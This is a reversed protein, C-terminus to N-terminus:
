LEDKLAVFCLESGPRQICASTWQILPIFLPALFAFLRGRAMSGPLLRSLLCWYYILGLPDRSQSKVVRFGTGGLLAPVEEFVYGARMHGDEAEVQPITHRRANPVEMVFLGGSRLMRQMQRLLAVDDQIHELLALCFIADFQGLEMQALRTVDGAIFRLQEFHQRRAVSTATAVKTADLEIGVVDAGRANLMFALDGIGCGVDLVRKGRFDYDKLLSTVMDVRITKGMPPRFLALYCRVVWAPAHSRERASLVFLDALYSKM